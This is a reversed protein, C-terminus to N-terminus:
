PRQKRASRHLLAAALAASIHQGGHIECFLFQGGPNVELFVYEGGPTLRMDAAGFRLGLVCMLELLKECVDIPLSHPLIEASLDLRWDLQAGPHHPRVAVPFLSDDVITVRIDTACPIKEQFICPARKLESLHRAHSPAFERTETFQWSTGTLVKFIAGHRQNQVFDLAADADNTVLTEPIRLGIGAAKVLQYPKQNASLEAALPNIVRNGLSYIWGQFAARAEDLCFQRVRSDAIDAPIAHRRVRRWWVGTVSDGSITGVACRIDYRPCDGNKLSFSLQWKVPYDAANLILARRNPHKKIEAAVSRAHIDEDEAIIVVWQIM